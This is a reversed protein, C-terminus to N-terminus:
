LITFSLSNAFSTYQRRLTVLSGYYRHVATDWHGRSDPRRAFRVHVASTWVTKEIQLCLKEGTGDTSPLYKKIMISPTITGRKFEVARELYKKVYKQLTGSLTDKYFYFWCLDKKRECGTSILVKIDISAGDVLGLINTYWKFYLSKQASKCYRLFDM